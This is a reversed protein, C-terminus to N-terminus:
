DACKLTFTFTAGKEKESEVWVEEDHQKIIRKVISLGIGSGSVSRGHAKDTKYFREFIYPQDEKPIGEGSNQINIFAKGRSCYVLINIEGGHKAFKVANDILNTLVQTIKAKDARVILKEVRFSVGVNLNKDEINREFTILTRRILENIDFDTMNLPFEGSEIKALEMLDTILAGLRKVETLVIELYGSREEKPVTGDLMAQVFGQVAALPARLEHSVNTVFTNRLGDLVELEEAMLNFSDALQGIEDKAKVSVRKKLNGKKIESVAVNLANIPKVIRKSTIFVLITAILLSFGGSMIIMRYIVMLSEDLENLETHIFVAGGIKGNIMLPTGVTIVPTNFFNNSPSVRRVTNGNLIDRFNRAFGEAIPEGDIVDQQDKSAAAWVYGLNDV